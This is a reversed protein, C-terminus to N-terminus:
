RLDIAGTFVTHKDVSLGSAAAVFSVVFACGVAV